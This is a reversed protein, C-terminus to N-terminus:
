TTAELEAKIGDLISKVGMLVTTTNMQMPERDIIDQVTKISQNIQDPHGIELTITKSM